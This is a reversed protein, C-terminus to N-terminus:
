ALRSSNGIGLIRALVELAYYDPDDRPPIRYAIFTAPVQALPDTVTIAEATEQITFEYPPLMPPEDGAPIDGFYEEIMARTQAVDIDGAVTLTANNPIYYADRFALVDELTAAELEAISGIVSSEYPAYDFPLTQWLLQAEGYPQNEIRLRYEEKVVEREREFNEQTIDLSRLREAELWLALPLQNAPLVEFYNTRDIATTANADGGAAAILRFHEGPAVNDSGQFLLHEFLHAFGGRNAPDNAGGVDYWVDVAVTPASADEVLIVELGNDLTYTVINLEGADQAHVPAPSVTLWLALLLTVCITFRYRIRMM